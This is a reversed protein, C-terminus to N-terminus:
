ERVPTSAGAGSTALAADIRARCEADDLLDRHFGEHDGDAIARAASQLFLAFTDAVESTVVSEVNRVRRRWEM